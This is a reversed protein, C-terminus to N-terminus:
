KKIKTYIVFFALAFLMLLCEFGPTSSTKNASSIKLMYVYYGSNKETSLVQASTPKYSINLPINGSLPTPWNELVFTRTELPNLTANTPTLKLQATNNFEPDQLFVSIEDSQASDNNYMVVVIDYVHIEKNGVPPRTGVLQVSVNKIQVGTHQVNIASGAIPLIILCLFGVLLCVFRSSNMDDWAGCGCHM